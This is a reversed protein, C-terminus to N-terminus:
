KLFLKPATHVGGDGSLLTCCKSWWLVASQIERQVPWVWLSGLCPQLFSLDGKPESAEETSLEGKTEEFAAAFLKTQKQADGPSLIAM